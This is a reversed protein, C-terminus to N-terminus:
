AIMRAGKPVERISPQLTSSGSSSAHIWSGESFGVERIEGFPAYRRVAAADFSFPSHKTSSLFAKDRLIESLEIGGLHTVAFLATIDVVARMENLAIQLIIVDLCLRIGANAEIHRKM